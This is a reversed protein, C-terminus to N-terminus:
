FLSFALWLDIGLLSLGMGCISLGVIESFGFVEQFGRVVLYLGGLALIVLLVIKLVLLTM